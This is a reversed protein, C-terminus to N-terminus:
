GDKQMCAMEIWYRGLICSKSNLFVLNRGKEWTLQSMKAKACGLNTATKKLETSSFLRPALDLDRRIHTIAVNIWFSTAVYIVM